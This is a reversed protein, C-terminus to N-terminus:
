RVYGKEFNAQLLVTSNPSIGVGRATIRYSYVEVQSRSKSIAGLEVSRSSQEELVTRQEIIYKTEDNFEDNNIAIAGAQDWTADDIIDPAGFQWVSDNTGDLVAPPNVLDELWIEAEKLAAEAAEFAVARDRFNGSMKEEINAGQMGQVGLFSLVLIFILGIILASGKQSKISTSYDIM